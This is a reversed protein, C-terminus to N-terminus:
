IFLIASVISGNNSKTIDSVLQLQCQILLNNTFYNKKSVICREYITESRQNKMKFQQIKVTVCTM